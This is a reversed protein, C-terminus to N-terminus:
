NVLLRGQAELFIQIELQRQCLPTYVLVPHGSHLPTLTAPQPLHALRAMGEGWVVHTSHFSNFPAPTTLRPWCSSASVPIPPPGWSLTSHSKAGAERPMASGAQFLHIVQIDAPYSMEKSPVKQAPFVPHLASPASGEPFPGRRTDGWGEGRPHQTGPHYTPRMRGVSILGSPLTM